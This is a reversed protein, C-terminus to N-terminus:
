IQPLSLSPAPYVTFLLHVSCPSELGEMVPVKLFSLLSNSPPLLSITHFILAHHFPKGEICSSSQMIITNTSLCNQSAHHLLVSGKARPQTMLFPGWAEHIYGFPVAAIRFLLLDTFVISARSLQMPDRLRSTSDREHIAQRINTGSRSLPWTGNKLACKCTCSSAGRNWTGYLGDRFM